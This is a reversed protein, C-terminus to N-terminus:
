LILPIVQAKKVPPPLVPFDTETLTPKPTPQVWATQPAPKAPKPAVLPVAKGRRRVAFWDNIGPDEEEKVEAQVPRTPLTPSSSGDCAFDADDTEVPPPKQSEDRAYLAKLKEQIL